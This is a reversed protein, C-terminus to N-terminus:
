ASLAVFHDVGVASLCHLPVPLVVLQILLFVSFLM